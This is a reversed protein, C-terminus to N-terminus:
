GPQLLAEANLGDRGQQHHALPLHGRALDPGRRGCRQPGPDLLRERGSRRRHLSSTFRLRGHPHPAALLGSSGSPSPVFADADADADPRTEPKSICINVEPKSTGVRLAVAPERRAGAPLDAIGGGPLATVHALAMAALRHATRILLIATGRASPWAVKVYAPGAPLGRASAPRINAPGIAPPDAVSAAKRLTPSVENKLLLSVPQAEPGDREYCPSRLRQGPASKWTGAPADVALAAILGGRREPVFPHSLLQGEQAPLPWPFPSV